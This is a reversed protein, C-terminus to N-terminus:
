PGCSLNAARPTGLNTGDGYPTTGECWASGAPDLQYSVGKHTTTWTVQSLVSGDAALVAAAGGSDVLSFSFTADVQPLGSDLTPDASRAFLVYAAPAVSQCAPGAIVDPPKTDGVRALALGVLDFAASGVNQAEIWERTAETGKPNPLYETIALAGPAPAAIARTASGDQCQGPMVALCDSAAGPTGYQGAMYQTTTCDCWQAADGAQMASPPAGGALERSHGAVVSAFSVQAVVDGSCSLQLEGSGGEKLTGLDGGFGYDVFPPTSDPDVAALVAYGGADVSLGAVVHSHVTAIGPRQHVIELGDLLLAHPTANYVEFWAPGGSSGSPDAFVETIVLDGPAIPVACSSDAPGCAAALVLACVIAVRETV